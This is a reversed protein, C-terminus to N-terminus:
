FWGLEISGGGFGGGLAKADYGFRTVGSAVRYGGTASFRLWRTANVHLSFDPQFVFFGETESYPSYCDGHPDDHNSCYVNQSHLNLAGGGLLMGVSAYVPFDPAFAAYRLLLGGYGAAYERPTGDIARPGEPTRSFVYGALGLSLRHDVLVALELDTLVGDRHLMHTYAIGLGGYAGVAVKGAGLLPPPGNYPQGNM